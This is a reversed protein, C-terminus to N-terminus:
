EKFLVLIYKQELCKYLLKLEKKENSSVLTILFLMFM